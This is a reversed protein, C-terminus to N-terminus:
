NETELAELEKAVSELIAKKATEADGKVQCGAARIHGGGGLRGCIASADVPSHTRVSIKYKGEEKGKLTIGVLVGEVTRTIGAVGDLESEDSEDSHITDYDLTTLACKGDFYIELNELVKKELFLRGSSKTEFFLKTIFESNAGCQMLEAAVIHTKPTTNTFQFCGTDTIIGTLLASALEKDPVIGLLECLEYLIECCASAESVLCLRKAYQKNSIHHDICLETNEKIEAPIGGMLKIDAVDVAIVTKGNADFNEIQTVTGLYSFKEHVTDGCIVEAKAGLKQLMMKLAFASGLTDGDPSSHTLIVAERVGRLYEATEKLSLIMCKDTM